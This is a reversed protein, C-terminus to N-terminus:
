PAKMSAPMYVISGNAFHATASISADFKIKISPNNDNIDGSWTVFRWGDAPTATLTVEDGFLYFSKKPSITVQGQGTKSISLTYQQQTFKAKVSTNNNIVFKAIPNSGTVGGEWGTFKWGSYPTASLTIETGKAFTTQNPTVNITGGTGNGDSEIQLNLTYYPTSGVGVQANGINDGNGSPNEPIANKSDLMVWFQHTGASLNPWNVEATYSRTSCGRVLPDITVTGIPKTRAADSYFTVDFPKDVATNGDNRFQVSLRATYTSGQQSLQMGSINEIFLNRYLAEGQIHSKFTEGLATYKKGDGRLLNGSNGNNSKASFWVWQQVLKNRDLSYGLNPDAANNFYDFSGLMFQSVRQPTFCNGFEDKILCTGTGTTYSYLTGYETIMLPKNQQGHDKMWQRMTIVQNQLISLDDHEALCYVNENPCLSGDGGSARKGISPDTGLAVSAINNANGDKDLEPLVYAHITWVDVPMPEGYKQLYASWVMNMYQLRMPTVQILGANAIRATPDISKIFNYTDHYAQVYVEAHIDDTALNKPNIDGPNPGREIENGLIWMNGKNANILDALTQDLPFNTYWEQLYQGTNTKKQKTRIMRIQEANNEPMPGYWTLDNFKYFLGAGTDAITWGDNEGAILGYRCNLLTGDASDGSDITNTDNELGDGVSADVSGDFQVLFLTGVTILVVILTLRLTPLIRNGEM